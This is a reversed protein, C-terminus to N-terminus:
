VDSEYASIFEAADPDFNTCYYSNELHPLADMNEFMLADDWGDSGIFTSEIGIERAQKM